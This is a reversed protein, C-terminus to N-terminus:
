RSPTGSKKNDAHCKLDMMGETGENKLHLVVVGCALVACSM